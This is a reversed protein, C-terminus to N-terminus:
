HDVDLLCNTKGRRIHDLLKWVGHEYLSFGLMVCTKCEAWLGFVAM